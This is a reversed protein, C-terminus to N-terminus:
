CMPFHAHPMFRSTFSCLPSCSLHQQWWPAWEITSPQNSACSHRLGRRARNHACIEHHTSKYCGMCFAHAVVGQLVTCQTHMQTHITALTCNIHKVTPSSDHAAMGARPPHLIPRPAQHSWAHATCRGTPSLQPCCHATRSHDVHPRHPAHLEGFFHMGLFTRPVVGPFEHHDYATINTGHYLLDHVAQM